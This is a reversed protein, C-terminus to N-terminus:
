NTTRLSNGVFKEVAELIGDEDLGVEAL